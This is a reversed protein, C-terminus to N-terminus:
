ENTWIVIEGNVYHWYNYGDTYDPETESYYYLTASTLYENDTEITIANWEESTGNYYVSTLSSCELFAYDGISTVSDPIVISALSTCYYFAREGISAVGDGITVSTLSTCDFFANEGISTV